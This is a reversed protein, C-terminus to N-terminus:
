LDFGTKRAPADPRNKLDETFTWGAAEVTWRDRSQLAELMRLLGDMTCHQELINAIQGAVYSGPDGVGRETTMGLACFGAVVSAAADRNQRGVSPVFSAALLLPDQSEHELTHCSECLVELQGTEYEWPERGKFYQRHHVHLTSSEDSCAACRWDAAQLAELRLKQWRPDKLKEFYTKSVHMESIGPLFSMPLAPRFVAKEPAVRAAGSILM